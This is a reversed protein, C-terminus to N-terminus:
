EDGDVAEDDLDFPRDPHPSGCVLLLLGLAVGVVASGALVLAERNLAFGAVAATLGPTLLSGSLAALLLARTGPRLKRVVEIAAHAEAAREHRAIAASQDLITADKRENAGRLDRNEDDQAAVLRNLALNQHVVAAVDKRAQDREGALRVATVELAHLRELFVQEADETTPQTPMDNPQGPPAAPAITPATM